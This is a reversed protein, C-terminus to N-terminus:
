KVSFEVWWHTIKKLTNDKSKRQEGSKIITHKIGAKNLDRSVSRELTGGGKEHQYFYSKRAIFNGDETKSVSDAIIVDKLQPLTIGNTESANRNKNERMKNEKKIRLKM